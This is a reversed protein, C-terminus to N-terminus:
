STLYNKVLQLIYENFVKTHGLVTCHEDNKGIVYNMEYWHKINERHSYNPHPFVQWANHRDHPNFSVVQVKPDKSMNQYWKDDAERMIHNSAVYPHLDELTKFIKDWHPILSHDDFHELFTSGSWTAIGLNTRVTSYNDNITETNWVLQNEDLLNFFMNRRGPMTRQLIILDAWDYCEDFCLRHYDTGTGVKAYNKFNHQPYLNSLQFTWSGQGIREETEYNIKCYYDSFSCGIIAVHM